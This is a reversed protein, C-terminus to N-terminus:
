FFRLRDSQVNNVTISAFYDYRGLPAWTEVRVVVKTPTWSRITVPLDFEIRSLFSINASNGTATPGFYKGNITIDYTDTDNGIAVLVYSVSSVEPQITYRFPLSSIGNSSLVIDFPNNINAPPYGPLVKGNNGSVEYLGVLDVPSADYTVGLSSMVPDIFSATLELGKGGDRVSRILPIPLYTFVGANLQGFGYELVVNGTTAAPARVDIREETQRAITAVVGNFFVQKVLDLRVGRITVVTGAFGSGPRLSEVEPPAIVSFIPGTAELDNVKLKVNGTLSGEPIEILLASLAAPELVDAKVGNLTVFNSDPISSFGKGYIRVQTGVLGATPSISDVAISAGNKALINEQACSLFLVSATIISLLMLFANAPFEFHNQNDSIGPLSRIKM